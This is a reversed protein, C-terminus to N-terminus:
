GDVLDKLCKFYSHNYIKKADEITLENILDCMRVWKSKQLNEVFSEDDRNLCVSLDHELDTNSLYIGNNKFININESYNDIIFERFEQHSLHNPCLLDINESPNILNNLKVCRNFGLATYKQPEDSKRKVKAIDNDTKLLIKIGLGHLVKVYKDFYIGNIAQIVIDDRKKGLTDLVWEFLLKESPGEVLLVRNVFLCQSLSEMLINKLQNYEGGINVIESKVKIHCNNKYLRILNADNSIKFFLQPSHTVLFLYPNFDDNFITQSLEIQSSIFLHNEPEEILLLPIKGDSNKGEKLLYSIIAYMVKRIRGDGSTPYIRPEENEELIKDYMYIDLNNHLDGFTHNPRIKIQYNDDFIGLQNNLYVEMNMVSSLKSINENVSKNLNSINNKIEKDEEVAIHSRLLEYKFDKFTTTTNNHAPVFICHFVDDLKTRNIGKTPIPILEEDVTGWYLNTNFQNNDSQEITLKICFDAKDTLIANEAYASLIQSYEDDDGIDIFCSIEINKATNMQHFDTNFIQYNRVKNDFLLRLAYMLNSKGVDNMGFILNKNALQIECEDFNRFNVIKLKTLKM